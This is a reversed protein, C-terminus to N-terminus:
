LPLTGANETGGRMEGVGSEFTDFSSRGCHVLFLQASYWCFSKYISFLRQWSQNRRLQPDLSELARYIFISLRSFASREFTARHFLQAALDPM